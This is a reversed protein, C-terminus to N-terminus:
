LREQRYVTRVATENGQVKGSCQFESSQFRTLAGAWDTCSPFRRCSPIASCFLGESQVETNLPPKKMEGKVFIIPRLIIDSREHFYTRRKPFSDSQAM